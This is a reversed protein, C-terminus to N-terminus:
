LRGSWFLAVVVGAGIAAGYPFRHRESFTPSTVRGRALMFTEGIAGLVRYIASTADPAIRLLVIVGIYFTRPRAALVLFALAGAIVIALGLKQPFNKRIFLERCGCAPCQTLVNNVPQIM